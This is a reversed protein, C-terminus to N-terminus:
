AGGKGFVIPVRGVLWRGWGQLGRARVRRERYLRLYGFSLLKWSFAGTAPLNEDERRKLLARRTTAAM